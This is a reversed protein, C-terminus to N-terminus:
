RVGEGAVTAGRDVGHDTEHNAGREEDTGGTVAGAGIETADRLHGGIRAGAVVPAGVAVAVVGAVTLEGGRTELLRRGTGTVVVVIERIAARDVPTAIQPNILSM